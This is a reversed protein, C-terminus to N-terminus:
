RYLRLFPDQWIKKMTEQVQQLIKTDGPPIIITVLSRATEARIHKAENVLQLLRLIEFKDASFPSLTTLRRPRDRVTDSRM